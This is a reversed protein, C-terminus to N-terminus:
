VLLIEPLIELYFQVALTRIGQQIFDIVARAAAMFIKINMM